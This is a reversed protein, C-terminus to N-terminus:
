NKANLFDLATDIKQGQTTQILGHSRLIKAAVELYEIASLSDGDIAAIAGLLALVHAVRPHWKGMFPGYTKLAHTLTRNAEGTDGQLMEVWAINMLVPLHHVSQAGVASMLAVQSQRLYSGALPLNSDLVYLWGRTCLLSAYPLSRSFEDPNAQCIKLGQEVLSVAEKRSGARLQVWASADLVQLGLHIMSEKEAVITRLKELSKAAYEQKNEQIWLWSLQVKAQVLMANSESLGLAPLPKSSLALAREAEFYRGSGKLSMGDDYLTQHKHRVAFVAAGAAPVLAGLWILNDLLINM